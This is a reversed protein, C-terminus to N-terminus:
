KGEQVLQMTLELREICNAIFHELNCTRNTSVKAGYCREVNIMEMFASRFVTESQSIPEM